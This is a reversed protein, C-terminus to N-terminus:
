CVKNSWAALIEHMFKMAVKYISFNVRPDIWRYKKSLEGALVNEEMTFLADIIDKWSANPTRRLWLDFSDQKSPIIKGNSETEIRDLDYKKVGLNIMLSKWSTTISRLEELLDKLKPRSKIHAM